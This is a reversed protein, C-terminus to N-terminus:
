PMEYRHWRVAALVLSVLSPSIIFFASSLGNEAPCPGHGLGVRHGWAAAIDAGGNCARDARLLRNRQTQWGKGLGGPEAKKHANGITHPWRCAWSAGPNIASKHPNRL